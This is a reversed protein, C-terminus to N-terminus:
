TRAGVGWCSEIEFHRAGVETGRAGLCILATPLVYVAINSRTTDHMM